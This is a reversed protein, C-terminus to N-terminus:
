TVTGAPLRFTLTVLAGRKGNAIEASGGFSQMAGRVFALGLGTGEGAPKTTVFPEFATALIKEDIGGGTDEVEVVAERAGGTIRVDITREEASPNEAIAYAANMLLNLFVHELELPSALVRLGPMNASVRVSVDNQTLKPAALERAGALCSELDVRVLSDATPEGRAFILLRDVILRAQRAQKVISAFKASASPANGERLFESGNEAALSIINLPQSIEHAISAYMKGLAALRASADAVAEAQKLDTVDLVYADLVRGLPGWNGDESAFVRMTRGGRTVDRPLGGSRSAEVAGQLVADLDGPAGEALDASLTGHRVIMRPRGTAPLAIQVLAGPLGRLLARTADDVRRQLYAARMEQGLAGWAILLSAFFVLAAWPVTDSGLVFAPTRASPPFALTLYWGDPDDLRMMLLECGCLPRGPEDALPILVADRNKRADRLWDPQKGGVALGSGESTAVVNGSTDTLIAIFSGGSDQESFLRQFVSVPIHLALQEAGQQNISGSFLTVVNDGTVPSIYMDSIQINSSTRAKRMTDLMPQLAKGPPGLNMPLKSGPLRTHMLIELESGHDRLVSMYGDLGTAFRAVHSEIDAISSDRNAHLKTIVNLTVNYNHIQQQVLSALSTALAEAKDETARRLNDADLYGVAMVTVLTNMVVFATGIVIKESLRRFLKAM